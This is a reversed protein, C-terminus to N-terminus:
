RYLPVHLWLNALSPLNENLQKCKSTATLAGEWPSPAGKPYILGDGPKRTQRIPISGIRGADITLRPM